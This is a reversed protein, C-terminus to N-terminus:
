LSSSETMIGNNISLERDCEDALQKNHTVLLLTMQESKVLNFILKSILDGTTNDLNGTPEDALLLAPKIAIARAIAVRQCEGGSLQHPFHDTRKELEVMKLAEEAKKAAQTDNAIEMPLSVNELATLHPMLHFQQFVIGIHKARYKALINEQMISINEGKLIVSGSSPKDLGAILSILTSKGSGSKGLIAVTEGKKIEFNIGKLVDVSNSSGSLNFQKHLNNVKLIM